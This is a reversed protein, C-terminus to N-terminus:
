DSSRASMNVNPSYRLGYRKESPAARDRAMDRGVTVIFGAYCANIGDAADDLVGM